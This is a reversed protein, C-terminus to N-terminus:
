GLFLTVVVKTVLGTGIGLGAAVRFLDVSKGIDNAEPARGDGLRYVGPKELTVGLAGAMAAMTWGANPSATRQYDQRLVRWAARADAGVGAALVLALAAIRAPLLNLLDDLRAAVKGFYELVGERYGIMADATNIVRYVAAGPLGFVLFCLVHALVSDTLNEAVSEIAASAVHSADLTATGRSVLNQGVAARASVLDAGALQRAVGTAAEMLGRVAFLSKLAVAELVLGAVGMHAAVVNV